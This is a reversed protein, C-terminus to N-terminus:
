GADSGAPDVVAANSPIEYYDHTWESVNGGIDYIGKSNPEYMGVPSSVIYNDNYGFIIRAVTHAASADAYNGQREPPPVRDGWPYRLLDGGDVHRATWAWEAETPLRYGLANRNFGVIKSLDERYFPELGDQASLWNCYLAADQWSVRVVPQDAQNLDLGEFSDSDHGSAFARFQANTVEHRSLYFLRTLEVDRLVENARRGPERRSAGMRIFGPSLLVLEQNQGTTRVQKLAELRAEELTLLRVKLEQPFGPQPVITARYSAYGAKKVELEHPVASLTLTDGEPRRREGDIWLEADPPDTKIAMDGELATLTFSLNKQKGTPVTVSVSKPAYGVKFARIEHGRDSTVGVLVPTVGRYEGDVTVSAGPPRSEVRIQGDAKRLTIPNLAVVQQPEVYLLDTWVSYGPLSVSVRREGAPVPVPGPTAVSSLEGDIRVDAGTPTTPITVDAWNPILSATVTQLRERGQVEFALTADQYRPHSVTATQPGAPVRLEVPSTGQIGDSGIVTVEAGEPDIDFTVWGPLPTTELQDDPQAKSRSRDCAAADRLRRRRGCARLLRRAPPSDRGLPIRIWRRHCHECRGARYGASRVQRHIHVVSDVGCARLGRGRSRPARQHPAFASRRDHGDAPVAGGRHPRRQNRASTDGSREHIVFILYKRRCRIDVPEMDPALIIERRVDRCGDRSGIIIYRGPRLLLENRTFVGLAGVKHIVVETANDSVLILPVPATSQEIIARLKAVEATFKEGPDVEAEARALVERADAFETEGSLVAPDGNYRAMARMLAVRAAIRQKGTIAFKLTPDIALSENYSALASAWEAQQEAREAAERM